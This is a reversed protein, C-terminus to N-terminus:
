MPQSYVADVVLNSDVIKDVKTHGVVTKLGLVIISDEEVADSSSLPHMCPRVYSKGDPPAIDNAVTSFM